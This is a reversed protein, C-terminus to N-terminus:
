PAPFETRFPRAARAAAILQLACDTAEGRSGALIHAGAAARATITLTDVPRERAALTNDLLAMAAQGATLKTPEWRAHSDFQTVAIIGVPVPGHIESAGLDEVARRRLRHDGGVRISLRRPYPHVMGDADLVAYDDSGYSAGARLLAEVLTTKGSGSRGPIVIGVNGVAVVGAHVFLLAPARRGVETRVAAELADVITAIRLSTVTVVSDVRLTLPRRPGASGQSVEFRVEPAAGAVAPTWRPPLAPIAKDLLSADPCVLEMTVGFSTFRLTIEETSM